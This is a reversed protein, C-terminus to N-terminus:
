LENLVTRSSNVLLVASFVLCFTNYIKFHFQVSCMVLIYIFQRQLPHFLLQLLLTLSFDAMSVM